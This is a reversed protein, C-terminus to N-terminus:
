PKPGYCLDARALTDVIEAWGLGTDELGLGNEINNEEVRGTARLVNEARDPDNEGYWFIFTTM